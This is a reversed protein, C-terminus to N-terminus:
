VIYIYMLFEWEKKMLLRKGKLLNIGSKLM